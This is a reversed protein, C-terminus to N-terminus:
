HVVVDEDDPDKLFEALAAKHTLTKKLDEPSLRVFRATKTKPDIRVLLVGGKKSSRSPVGTPIAKTTGTEATASIDQASGPRRAAAVTTIGSAACVNPDAHRVYTRELAREIAVIEDGSLRHEYLPKLIERIRRKFGDPVAYKVEMKRCTLELTGKTDM